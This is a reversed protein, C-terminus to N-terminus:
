RSETGLKRDVGGFQGKLGEMVVVPPVALAFLTLWERWTLGVAHLIGSLAATHVALVQLLVAGGWGVLLWPNSFLGIRSLRESMSRFNFVNVKEMLILGTFAITRAWVVDGSSNREFLALTVLGMYVGLLIIILGSRRTIIPERPDRPLRQMAGPSGPELGLAIATISDTILNMWLIQVPLLILPGGILISGAIAVLEAANSSLMYHIFKRINDYQRRGEEVASVISAFNDDALVMDAAHRAVDTGRIGMGIGINAQRLAPADNVGDGTMAVVHGQKQLAKVIRLKHEPTARAILINRRLATDLDSDSMAQIAPGELAGEVSLNIERGISLATRPSDGTIMIVRIGASEATRIASAVEPRVPDSIAALGLFILGREIAHEDIENIDSGAVEELPRRAVALIRYGSDAFQRRVRDITEHDRPSLPRPHGRDLIGACRELIAQPAGKMHVTLRDNENVVVTMRRRESSFPFEAVIEAAEIDALGAERAAIMLAAETPSGVVEWGDDKLYVRAHNCIAASRLLDAPDSGEPQWLEHVAMEGRTLTGTKDTCIVTTSGLTEVAKLRRILAKRAAMARLGLALALTVVAPLGEPVVAVAMSVATLLMQVPPKGSWLGVLGVVVSVGGGALALTRGVRRLKRELPTPEHRVDATLKAIRGFETNGGTAVAIGKGRGEAVNTGMWAMCTREAIPAREDVPVNKKEVAASEGTLTSEDLRLNFCEVLRLDAPVRGGAHLEVIDGPVVDESRVHHTFGDRVVVSVPVLMDRLANVANEAKWEQAFGFLANIFLIALIAISDGTDGIAGSLIAAAALVLTMSDNFQRALALYWHRQDKETLTNPGYQQRRAQAEETSLGTDLRTGYRERVIEAELSHSPPSATMPSLNACSPMPTPAV